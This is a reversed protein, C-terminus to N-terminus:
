SAFVFGARGPGSVARGGAACVPNGGFTNFHLRTALTSAIEPTTVVAALPLGNGIGKALTVIDPVVGQLAACRLPPTHPMPCPTATVARPSPLGEASSLNLSWCGGMRQPQEHAPRQMIGITCGCPPMSAAGQRQVCWLWLGGAGREGVQTEFGWYHTGTRGFGTQVEDAICVGGAERM